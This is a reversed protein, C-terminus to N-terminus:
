DRSAFAAELRTLAETLLSRPCAFNLRMFGAGEKGFAVGDNLGLRAKQVIFHPLEEAPVGSDRFDLWALYTAEPVHMKVQPLRERLFNSAYTANDHLYPLLEDLWQEGGNYAATLAEIGFANVFQLGMRQQMGKFRQLLKRNKAIAVSTFLGALNFTKSGSVFTLSHDAMEESLSFYPRHAGKEFVLDSHIEDSIVIIDNERCIDALERLEEETWVRGVPNHPSCLILLRTDADIKRRLDAFDMTYYGNTEVLPNEVLQRGRKKAVDFFPHYVPPQIVIKDGPETFAEVAVYLGSVVGPLETMWETDVKVGLRRDFWSAAAQFFSTPMGPYGYIPHKARAVLAEVVSPPAPFDMDAVWLPLVDDTGFVQESYNWKISNTHARDIVTDFDNM